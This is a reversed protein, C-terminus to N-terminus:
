GVRESTVTGSDDVKIKYQTGNPSKLVYGGGVESCVFNQSTYISKESKLMNELISLIQNGNVYYKKGGLLSEKLVNLEDMSMASAKLNDASMFRIQKGNQISVNDQLELGVFVGSAHSKPLGKGIVFVTKGNSFCTYRSAIYKGDQFSVGIDPNKGEYESGELVKGNIWFVGTKNYGTDGEQDAHFYIGLDRYAQGLHYADAFIKICGGVGTTVKDKALLYFRTANDTFKTNILGIWSQLTTVFKSTASLRELGSEDIINKNKDLQETVVTMNEDIKNNLDKFVEKNIIEALTGDTHMKKIEETVQIGLLDGFKSEFLDFKNDIHAVLNYLESLVEQWTKKDMNYLNQIANYINSM